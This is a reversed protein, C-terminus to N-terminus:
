SWYFKMSINLLICEFYTRFVIVGELFACYAVNKENGNINIRITNADPSIMRAYRCWVSYSADPLDVKIQASGCEPGSGTLVADDSLGDKALDHYRSTDLQWQPGYSAVYLLKKRMAEAEVLFNKNEPQQPLKVLTDCGTILVFLFVIFFLNKITM